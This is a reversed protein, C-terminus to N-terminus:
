LNNEKQEFWRGDSGCVDNTESSHYKRHSHCYEINKIKQEGNVLCLEMNNPSMCMHGNHNNKRSHKCNICLKLESIDKQQCNISLNM